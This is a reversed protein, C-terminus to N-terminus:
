GVSGRVAGSSLFVMRGFGQDGMAARAVQACRFSGGLHTEIVEDWEEDTMRHAMRDRNSGHCTVLFHLGGHATAANVAAEVDGRARVDGAVAQAVGGAGTIENVVEALADQGRGMVVVACGEGALRRATAAGIGGGGGTVLASKGEFRRM